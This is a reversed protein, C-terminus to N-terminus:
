LMSAAKGGAITERTRLAVRFLTVGVATLILAFLGLFAINFPDTIFDTNGPLM